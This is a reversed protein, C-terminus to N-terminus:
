EELRIRVADAAMGPILLIKERSSHGRLITISSPPIDLKAAIFKVLEKNAKGEVPPATVKVALANGRLGVVGGRESRPIVKIALTVGDKTEKIYMLAGIRAYPGSTHIPFGTGPVTRVAGRVPRVVFLRPHLGVSFAVM